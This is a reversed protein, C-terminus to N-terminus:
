TNTDGSEESWLTFQHSWPRYVDKTTLYFLSALDPLFFGNLGKRM